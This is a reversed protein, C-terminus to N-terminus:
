PHPFPVVLALPTLCNLPLAPKHIVSKVKLPHPLTSLLPSHLSSILVSPIAKIIVQQPYYPGLRTPFLLGQCM